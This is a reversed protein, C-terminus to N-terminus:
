PVGTTSDPKRMVSVADLATLDHPRQRGNLGFEIAASFFGASTIKITIPTDGPNEWYWGHLGPFPATFAGSAHSADRKDYSEEEGGSGGDPAGHLDHIVPSTATWAYLMSAGKELRYKYEVYEYPGLAFQAADVKYEAAYHGVPGQQVPTVASAGPPPGIEVPSVPASLATLGFAAGTGLPDVGYEAPLVVAVLIAVATLLAIGVTAALKRKTPLAAPEV